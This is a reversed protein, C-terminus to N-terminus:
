YFETGLAPPTCGLKLEAKFAARVVHLVEEELHCKQVYATVIVTHPNLYL